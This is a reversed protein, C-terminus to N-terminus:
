NTKIIKYTIFGDDANPLLQLIYIGNPLSSLNFEILHGQFEQKYVEEGNINYLILRGCNPESFYIKLHEKFPNPYISNIYIKGIEDVVTQTYFCTGNLATNSYITSDGNQACLLMSPKDFAPLFTQFIIGFNPGVGEIFTLDQNFPHGPFYHSFNYNFQIHKQAQEYYVCDVIAITDIGLQYSYVKPNLYFTDGLALNMDMILKEEGSVDEFFWLSGYSSDERLYWPFGDIKFYNIGNIITDTSIFFSTTTISPIGHYSVDWQTIGDELVSQFSQCHTSIQIFNVLIIHLYFIFKMKSISQILYM